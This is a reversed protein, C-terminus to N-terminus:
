GTAAFLGEDTNPVTTPKTPWGGRRSTADAKGLARRELLAQMTIGLEAADRKLQAKEDHSMRFVVSTQRDEATLAGNAM